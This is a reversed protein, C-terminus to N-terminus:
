ANGWQSRQWEQRTMSTIVAHRKPGFRRRLVAERKFGIGTNFKIARVNDSPMASWLVEAGARVFAYRLLGALTARSAWLPTEAAISVQLSRGVDQWDHFVVVAATRGHREVAAAQCPGFSSVHPIRLAAWQAVKAAENEDEAWLIM